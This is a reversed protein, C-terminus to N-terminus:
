PFCEKEEFFFSGRLVAIHTAFGGEGPAFELPPKLHSSSKISIYSRPTKAEL